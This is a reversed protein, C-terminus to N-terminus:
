YIYKHYYNVEGLTPAYLYSPSDFDSHWPQSISDPADQIQKSNDGSPHQFPADSKISENLLLASVSTVFNASSKKSIIVPKNAQKNIPKVYYFQLKDKLNVENSYHNENITKKWSDDEQRTTGSHKSSLPLKIKKDDYNIITKYEQYISSAPHKSDSYMKTAKLNM